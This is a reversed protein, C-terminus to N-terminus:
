PLSRLRTCLLGLEVLVIAIAPWLVYPYEQRYETYRRGRAPTKELRDIEAYVAQLASTDQAHFYRGGTKEALMKLTAEDLEVQERQVVTRGSLDTQSVDAVGTTGVGIAHIRIGEARALQAADSPSTVGATQKGDSLLLIVKSKVPAARLRDVALVVADGLATSIEEQLLDQNIVNGQADLIPEAVQIGALVAMLAQHDLTLPCKGDAFGGFDVLGLLDNPRGRLPGEGAVFDHLVQKVAALRSITEGQWQFDLAQMSGSRDVCLELAIGETQVRFEEQGQEPRALAVVLLALALLHLAPLVQRVRLALTAPLGALLGVDSFLLAGSRRRRLSRLGVFLLPILLLLWLPDQFQFGRM